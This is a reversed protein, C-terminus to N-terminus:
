AFHKEINWAKIFRFEKLLKIWAIWFYNLAVLDKVTKGDGGGGMDVVVDMADEADTMTM